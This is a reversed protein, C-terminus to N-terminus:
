YAVRKKGRRKADYMRQDALRILQEASIGEAACTAAGITASVKVSRGNVNIPEAISARLNASVREIILEGQFEALPMAILFEDGGLRAALDSGRIARRIRDAVVALVHDGAAHGYQDNVPKFDDLDLFLVAVSAAKERAALLEELARLFRVRNPLGTLADHEALHQSQRKAEEELRLDHKLANKLLFAQRSFRERMTLALVGVLNASVLFFCNQVLMVWHGGEVMHQGILALAAYSGVLVVGALAAHLPRLYTWAYLAISVLILGAYYTSWGVDTNRSLLIIAEIGGGWCLAVLCMFLTYRRLFFRPRLQALAMAAATALVVIARVTWAGTVNSPVAVLDLVGFCLYLLSCLFGALHFVRVKEAALDAQYAEELAPSFRGAVTSSPISRSVPHRRIRL